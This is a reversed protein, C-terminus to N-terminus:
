RRNVIGADDRAIADNKSSTRVRGVVMLQPEHAHRGTLASWRLTAFGDILRHAAWRYDVGSTSKRNEVLVARTLFEVFAAESLLSRFYVHFSRGSDFLSFEDAGVSIAMERLKAISPEDRGRWDLMPLHRVTLGDELICRSHIAIEHRPELEQELRHYTAILEEVPCAIIQQRSKKRRPRYDYLCISVYKAGLSRFYSEIKLVPTFLLTM